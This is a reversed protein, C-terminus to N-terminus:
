FRKISENCIAIVEEVSNCFIIERHEGDCITVDFRPKHENWRIRYYRNSANWKSSHIEGNKEFSPSYQYFEDAIQEQILNDATYLRHITIGAMEAVKALKIYNDSNSKKMRLYAGKGKPAFEQLRKEINEYEAASCKSNMSDVYEQKRRNWLLDYRVKEEDERNDIFPRNSIEILSAVDNVSKHENILLFSVGFTFSYIMLRCHHSYRLVFEPLKPFRKDNGSICYIRHRYKACISCCCAGVVEVYDSNTSQAVNMQHQIAERNILEPESLAGFDDYRYPSTHPLPILEPLKNEAQM